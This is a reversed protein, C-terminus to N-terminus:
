RTGVHIIEGGRVTEAAEKMQDFLPRYSSLENSRVRAVVFGLSLKSLNNQREMNRDITVFVDFETQALELLPGDPVASWGVETVTRVIHGPLAHRVGANVCEDLLIRV